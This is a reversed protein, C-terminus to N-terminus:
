GPSPANRPAEEATALADVAARISSPAPLGAQALATGFATPSGYGVARAVLQATAGPATMLAVGVLLRRRNRADRWGGANFGYESNFSGVIRNIHRSTVGISQELDAIMPQTDLRSFLGDLARSLRLTREAVAEVCEAEEPIRLPLGCRALLETTALWDRAGPDGLSLREFTTRATREAEHDLRARFFPRPRPGLWEPDWELVLARYPEGEQRMVIPGKEDMGVVDLPAVEAISSGVRIRAKGDLLITAIPRTTRGRRDFSRLALADECVVRENWVAQLRGRSHLLAHTSVRARLAEVVVSRRSLIM